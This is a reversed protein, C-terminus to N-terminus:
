MALKAITSLFPSPWIESDSNWSPQLLPQTWAAEALAPPWDPLLVPLYLLGTALMWAGSFGRNDPAEKQGYSKATSCNRIRTEYEFARGPRVCRAATTTTAEYDVWTGLAWSGCPVEDVPQRKPFTLFLPSIMRPMRRHSIPIGIGIM